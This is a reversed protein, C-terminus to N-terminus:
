KGGKIKKLQEIYKDRSIGSKEFTRAIEEEMPTLQYSKSTSKTKSGADPDGKNTAGAPKYGGFKEPFKNRVKRSVEQLLKEYEIAAGQERASALIAKAEGDAYGRLAPDSQYWQNKDLWPEWSPHMAPQGTQVTQKFEEKREQHEQQLEEVKDDLELVKETDGELLAQKREQKLEKLADKFGTEYVKENHKVLAGVQSELNLIKNKYSNIRGFLEGNKVYQKASVWDDPSGEWQDKPVWGTEMAQLEVESYQPDDTTTTQDVEKNVLDTM